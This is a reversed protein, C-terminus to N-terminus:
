ITKLNESQFITVNLIIKVCINFKYYLTEYKIVWYRSSILHKIIVNRPELSDNLGLGRIHSHAGIREIKTIERVEQVNTLVQFLFYFYNFNSFLLLWYFNYIVAGHYVSNNYTIIPIIIHYFPDFM